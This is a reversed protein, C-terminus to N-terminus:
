DTPLTQDTGPLHTISLEWLRFEDEAEAEELDEKVGITVLNQCPLDVVDLPMLLPLKLLQNTGLSKCWLTALSIIKAGVSQISPISSNQFCLKNRELWITWLITGRVLEVMSKDKLPILTDLSWLDAIDACEFNFNNHTAIWTWISRIFFYHM